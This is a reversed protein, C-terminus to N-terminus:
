VGNNTYMYIVTSLNVGAVSNWTCNIAATSVTTSFPQVAEPKGLLSLYPRLNLVKQSQVKGDTLGLWTINNTFFYKTSCMFSYIEKRIDSFHKM